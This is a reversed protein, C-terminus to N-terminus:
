NTVPSESNLAFSLAAGRGGRRNISPLLEALIVDNICLMDKEILFEMSDATLGNHFYDIWVSTDALIM